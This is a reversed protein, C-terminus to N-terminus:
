TLTTGWLRSLLGYGHPFSCPQALPLALSGCTAGLFVQLTHIEYVSIGHCLMAHCRGCLVTARERGKGRDEYPSSLRPSSLDRLFSAAFTAARGKVLGSHCSFREDPSKRKKALKVGRGRRSREQRRCDIQPTAPQLDCFAFRRQM